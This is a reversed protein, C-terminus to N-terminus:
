RARGKVTAAVYLCANLCAALRVRTAKGVSRMPKEEEEEEEEERSWFVVKYQSDRM